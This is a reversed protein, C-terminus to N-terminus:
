MGGMIVAQTGDELQSCQFSTMTIGNYISGMPLLREFSAMSVRRVRMSSKQWLMGAWLEFDQPNNTNIEAMFPLCLDSSVKFAAGATSNGGIAAILRKTRYKTPSGPPRGNVTQRTTEPLLENAKTDFISSQQEIQFTGESVLVTKRTILEATQWIETTISTVTVTDERTVIDALVQQLFVKPSLLASYYVGDVVNFLQSIEITNDTQTGEFWIKDAEDVSIWVFSETVVEASGYVHYGSLIVTPQDGPDIADYEAKSLVRSDDTLYYSIYSGSTESLSIRTFFLKTSTVTGIIRPQLYIAPTDNEYSFIETTERITVQSSEYVGDVRTSRELLAFFNVGEPGTKYKRTIYHTEIGESTQKEEAPLSESVIKGNPYSAGGGLTIEGGLDIESTSWKYYGGTIEVLDYAPIGSISSVTRYMGEIFEVETSDADEPQILAITIKNQGLSWTYDFDNPLLSRVFPLFKQGRKFVVTPNPVHFTPLLAEIVIGARIGIEKLIGNVTWGNSNYVDCAKYLVEHTNTHYEDKLLEYEHPLCSLFVLHKKLGTNQLRILVDPYYQAEVAVGVNDPDIEVSVEQALCNYTVGGINIVLPPPEYQLWSSEPLAADPMISANIAPAILGPSQAVSIAYIEPNDVTILSPM